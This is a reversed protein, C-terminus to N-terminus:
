VRCYVILHLELPLWLIFTITFSSSSWNCWWMHTASSLVKTFGYVFVSCSLLLVGSYFELCSRTGHRCPDTLLQLKNIWLDQFSLRCVCCISTNERFWPWMTANNAVDIHCAWLQPLCSAQERDLFFHKKNKELGWYRISAFRCLVILLAQGCM